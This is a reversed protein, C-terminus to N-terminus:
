NVFEFLRRGVEEPFHYQLKEDPRYLILEPSRSLIGIRLRVPKKDFSLGVWDLVRGNVYQRVSLAQAYHWQDILQKIRDASLDKQKPYTQWSGNELSLRYGPLSLAIPKRDKEILRKSLYDTYNRTAAWFYSTDIMAVRDQVLVYQLNNVPNTDGFLIELKDLQLGSKPHDLGYHQLQQTAEPSLSQQNKAALIRLVNNVVFPNTRGFLPQVMKWDGNRRQLEIGPINGRTITIRKIDAARITTLPPKTVPKDIGPRWLAIAALVVIVGLLSLNLLWRKNM